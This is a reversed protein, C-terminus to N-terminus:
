GPTTEPAYAPRDSAAPSDLFVLSSGDYRIRRGVLLHTKGETKMLLRGFAHQDLPVPVTREDDMGLFVLVLPGCDRVALISGMTTEPDKM